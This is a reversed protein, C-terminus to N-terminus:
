SVEAPVAGGGENLLKRLVDKKVKGLASLPLPNESCSSSKPRKYDALKGQCFAVLDHHNIVAGRRVMCAAHIREGWVDDPLGVVACQIIDPHTTLVQEVESSAVNEGGTVIMDKLRDTVYLYGDEDLYGVDGTHLWGDRLVQATLEPHGLYGGFLGVSRGCIEGAQGFDCAGGEKNEIRIDVGIVPRGASRLRRSRSDRHRHDIPSLVSLNGCSETQGYFQTLELRPFREFLRMLTAESISSAGYGLYRFASLDHREIDAKSALWAIMTPVLATAAIAHETLAELLADVSFRPLFHHTGGWYTVAFCPGLGALHFLPTVHLFRPQLGWDLHHDITELDYEIARHSLQVGKPDGTTGGTFIIAWPEDAACDAPSVPEAREVLARLPKAFEPCDDATGLFLFTADISRSLERSIQCFDDDFLIITCPCGSLLRTLEVEALRGNIPVFTRGAWPVAYSLALYDPGNRALVGIRDGDVSHCRLVAATRAVQERFQTWSTREGAHVMATSSAYRDVTRDLTASLQFPRPSSM